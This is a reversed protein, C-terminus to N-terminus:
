EQIRNPRSDPFFFPGDTLCHFSRMLTLRGDPDAQTGMYHMPSGCVPCGMEPPTEPDAERRRDPKPRVFPNDTVRKGEAECVPRAAPVM